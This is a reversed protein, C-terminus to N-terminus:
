EGKLKQDILGTIIEVYKTANKPKFHKMSSVDITCFEIGNELCAQFKRYDNTKMRSLKDEGFIPEYHFIGNLEFALKLSPAYIDLEANIASTKNFHLELAPYRESLVSEVHVELKSRRTGKTKHQNNYTAACSKSCFVNKGRLTNPQRKLKKKCQKCQVNLLTEQAKSKCKKNCYMCKVSPHGALCKQIEHKSKPFPKKCYYCELLLTGRTTSCHEFDSNTYLPKM